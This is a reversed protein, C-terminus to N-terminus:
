NFTGQCKKCKRLKKSNIQVFSVRTPKQCLPCILMVNSINIPRPVEVIQGKENQKKPRVHKKYLNLGEIVVKNEKPLVKIIKGSKGNDKGKLIKVIDGKKIKM